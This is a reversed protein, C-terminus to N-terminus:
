ITLGLILSYLICNTQLRVKDCLDNSQYTYKSHDSKSVMCRSHWGLLGQLQILAIRDKDQHFTLKFLTKMLNKSNIPDSLNCKSNFANEIEGEKRVVKLLAINNGEKVSVVNCLNM